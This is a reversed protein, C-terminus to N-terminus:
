DGDSLMEDDFDLENDSDDGTSAHVVLYEKMIEEMYIKQVEQLRSYQKMKALISRYHTGYKDESFKVPKQTKRKRSSSDGAKISHLAYLILTCALAITAVPAGANDALDALNKDSEGTVDGLLERIFRIGVPRGRTRRTFLVIKVVKGVCLHRYRGTIKKTALDYSTHAFNVNSVLSDIKAVSSPTVDYCEEVAKLLGCLFGNRIGSDKKRVYDFAPQSIDYDIRSVNLTTEAYVMCIEQAPLVNIPFPDEACLYFNWRYRMQKIFCVQDYTFDSQQLLNPRYTEPRHVHPLHARSLRFSSPAVSSQWLSDHGHGPEPVASGARIAPLAQAPVPEDRLMSSERSAANAPPNQPFHLLGPGSARTPVPAAPAAPAAPLIPPITGLITSYLTNFDSAPAPATSTPASAIPAQGQPQFYDQGLDATDYREEFADLGSASQPNAFESPPPAWSNFSSRQICLQRAPHPSVSISFMSTDFQLSPNPVFPAIQMDDHAPRTWDQSNGVIVVAPTAYGIPRNQRRPTCLLSNLTTTPTIQNGPTNRVVLATNLQGSPGSESTTAGQAIASLHPNNENLPNSVSASHEVHTGASDQATIQPLESDHSEPNPEERAPGSNHEPEGQEDEHATPAAESTKATAAAAKGRGKRAVSKPLAPRETPPKPPPIHPSKSHSYKYQLGRTAYRPAEEAQPAPYPAAADRASGPKDTARPM